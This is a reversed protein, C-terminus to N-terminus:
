PEEDISLAENLAARLGENALLLDAHKNEIYHQLDLALQQDARRLVEQREALAQARQEVSAVQERLDTIGQRSEDAYGRLEDLNRTIADRMSSGGNPYLEKKVEHLSAALEQNQASLGAFGGTDRFDEVLRYTGHGVRWMARLVPVVYRYITGLALLAAAIAALVDGWLPLDM